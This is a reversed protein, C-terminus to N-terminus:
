MIFFSQPWHRTSYRHLQNEVNNQHAIQWTHTATNITKHKYVWSVIMVNIGIFPCQFEDQTIKWACWTSYNTIKQQTYVLIRTHLETATNITKHKYVWSVIMVNIGIFPCQFEDQTIKWASWTSYNTIQQQNYVVGHRLFVTGTNNQSYSWSVNAWNKKLCPTTYTHTAWYRYQNDQTQLSLERDNCKNWHLVSFSMKHSRGHV